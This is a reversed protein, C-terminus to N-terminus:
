MIIFVCVCMAIDCCIVTRALWTGYLRYVDQVNAVGWTGPSYVPHLSSAPADGSHTLRRTQPRTGGRGRCQPGPRRLAGSSVGRHVCGWRGQAAGMQSPREQCGGPFRVGRCSEGRQEDERSSLLGWFVGLALAGSSFDGAIDGPLQDRRGDTLSSGSAGSGARQDRSLLGASGMPGEDRRLLMRRASRSWAEWGSGPPNPLTGEGGGPGGGPEKGALFM